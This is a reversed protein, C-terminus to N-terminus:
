GLAEIALCVDEDKAVNRPVGHDVFAQDLRRLRASAARPCTHITVIDDTAVLFLESQDRPHPTELALLQEDTMLELPRKRKWSSM